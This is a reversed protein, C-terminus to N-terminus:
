WSKRSARSSSARASIGPPVHEASGGEFAEGDVRGVFLDDGARRDGRRGERWPDAATGYAAGTSEEVDKDEVPVTHRTPEPASFDAIEVPPVVEFSMTFALDSKGDIIGTVEAEEDPLAIDPPYAPKINREAFLM